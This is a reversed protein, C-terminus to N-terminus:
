SNTSRPRAWSPLGARPPQRYNQNHKGHEYGGGEGPPPVEVPAAMAAAVAAMTIEYASDLLAYQGLSERIELAESSSLAIRPHDQGQVGNMGCLLLVFGLISYKIM